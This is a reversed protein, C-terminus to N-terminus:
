WDHNGPVAFVHPHEVVNEGDFATEFPVVLRKRYNERSAAPYVEDGGFILVQNRETRYTTDSGRRQLELLDQSSYFAVSYTSNFGDGTDAIYDIWIEQRPRNLDLNIEDALEKHHFTYDYLEKKRSSLAEILRRDSHKGIITSFLTQMGTDLLQGPDFWGVMPQRQLGDTERKM